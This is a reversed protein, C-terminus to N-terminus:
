VSPLPPLSAAAQVTKTSQISVDKTEAKQTQTKLPPGSFEKVGTTDVKVEAGSSEDLVPINRMLEHEESVQQQYEAAKKGNGNGNNIVPQPQPNVAAPQKSNQQPAVSDGPNSLDIFPM